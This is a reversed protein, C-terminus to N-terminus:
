KAPSNSIRTQDGGHNRALYEAFVSKAVRLQKGVRIVKFEGSRMLRYASDRGVRMIEQVETVDLVAPYEDFNIVGAGIAEAPKATEGSGGAKLERIVEARIHEILVNLAELTKKDLENM